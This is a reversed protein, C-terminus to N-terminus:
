VNQSFPHDIFRTIKGDPDLRYWTDVGFSSGTYVIYILLSDCEDSVTKNEKITCIDKVYESYSIHWEADISCIYTFVRKYSSNHIASIEYTLRTIRLGSPLSSRRDKYFWGKLRSSWELDKRVMEVDEKGAPREFYHGDQEYNMYVRYASRVTYCGVQFTFASIEGLLLEEEQIDM